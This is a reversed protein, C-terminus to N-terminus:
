NRRLRCVVNQSSSATGVPASGDILTVTLVPYWAAINSLSPRREATSPSDGGGSVAVARTGGLKPRINMGSSALVLEAARYFIRDPAPDLGNVPLALGTVAIADPLRTWVAPAALDTTYELAYTTAPNGYLMLSRAGAALGAELLPEPGIVVVRGSQGFLNTLLVAGTRAATIQRLTL